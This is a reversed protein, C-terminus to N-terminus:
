GVRDEEIEVVFGCSRLKEKKPGDVALLGVLTSNRDDDM